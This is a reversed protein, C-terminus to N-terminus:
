YDLARLHRIKERLAVNDLLAANRQGILEETRLEFESMRHQVDLIMDNNATLHTSLHSVTNELDRVKDILKSLATVQAVLTANALQNDLVVANIDALHDTLHTIKHGLAHIKEATPSLKKETPKKTPM